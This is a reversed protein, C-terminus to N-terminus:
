LTGSARARMPRTGPSHAAAATGHSAPRAAQGVTGRARAHSVAAEYVTYPLERMTVGLAWQGRGDRCLMSPVVLRYYRQPAITCAAIRHGAPRRYDVVLGPGALRLGNADSRALLHEMADLLERGSLTAECVVRRDRNVMTKFLDDGSIPGAPLGHRLMSNSFAAVDARAHNRLAEALWRCLPSPRGAPGRTTVPRPAYGVIALAEPCLAQNWAVLQDALATDIPTTAHEMRVLRGRYGIVGGADMDVTLELEGVHEAYQGAQVIIAGHPGTRIPETLLEHTHGSVFVDIDPAAAALQRCDRSGWHCVAVVLQNRSRLEHALEQLRPAIAAPAAAVVKRGAVTGRTSNGVGIIGVHVGDVVIERFAPVVTEGTDAYTVNCAVVPVRTADVNAKWRAAGYAIEHNGPVIADYGVVAIARLTMEGRSVVGLMDGKECVDGADVALVDARERRRQHLYGSVYVLGGCDGGLPRLNDHIDNTHLLLVTDTRHAPKALDGRCLGAPLAVLVITVLLGRLTSQRM